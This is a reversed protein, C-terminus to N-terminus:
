TVHFLIVESFLVAECGLCFGFFSFWTCLWCLQLVSCLSLFGFAEPKVRVRRGQVECRHALASSIERLGLLLAWTGGM